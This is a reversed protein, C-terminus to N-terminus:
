TNKKFLQGCQALLTTVVNDGHNTQLQNEPTLGM